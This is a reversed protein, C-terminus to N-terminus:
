LALTSRDQEDREVAEEEIAGGGDLRRKQAFFKVPDRLLLDAYAVDIPAKTATGTLVRNMAALEDTPDEPMVSEVSVERTRIHGKADRYQNPGLGRNLGAQQPPVSPPVVAPEFPPEM